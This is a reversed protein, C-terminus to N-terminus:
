NENWIELLQNSRERVRTKDSYIGECIAAMQFGGKKIQSLNSNNIGGIAINISNKDMNESVYKLDIEGSESMKTQSNFAPGFSYYSFVNNSDNKQASINSKCSLGIFEINESTLLFSLDELDPGIHLGTGLYEALLYDNNIIFLTNNDICIKKLKEATKLREDFNISDDFRYQIVQIGSSVTDEVANLLEDAKLFTPTIAYIGSQISKLM